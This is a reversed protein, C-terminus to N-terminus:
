SGTSKAANRPKMAQQARRLQDTARQRRQVDQERKLADKSAQVRGKLSQIRAREPSLPGQPGQTIVERIKM